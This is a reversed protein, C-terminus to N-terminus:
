NDILLERFEKQTKLYKLRKEMLELVGPIQQNYTQNLSNEFSKGQYYFYPDNKIYPMIQHHLKKANKEFAKSLIENKLLTIYHNVYLQKYEPVLFLKSILPRYINTECSFVPFESLKKADYFHSFGGFCMNMDWMIPHFIKNTDQIMYYNRGSWNYSDLNVFLNNFALMWMVKDIDLFKDIQHFYKTTDNSNYWLTMMLNLLENWGYNSQLEYNNAYCNSDLTFGITLGDSVEVNCNNPKSNRKTNECKFIAGKKYSYYKKILKKNVVEVNSYLGIISDNIFLQVFCAKPSPIYKGIIGFALVERIASPDMFVNSLKITQYGYINQKKIKYDLKINLPNKVYKSNYSSNGKFKVGVSDYEVGDVVLKALVRQDSNKKKYSELKQRWNKEYFNLKFDRLREVDFLDQSFLVNQFFLLFVILKLKLFM